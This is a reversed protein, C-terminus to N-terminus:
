DAALRTIEHIYPSSPHVLFVQRFPNLFDQEPQRLELMIQEPADLGGEKRPTLVTTSVAPEGTQSDIFEAKLVLRGNRSIGTVTAVVPRSTHRGFQALPRQGSHLPKYLNALPISM